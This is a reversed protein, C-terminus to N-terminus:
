LITCSPICRSDSRKDDGKDKNQDPPKDDDGSTKEEGVM